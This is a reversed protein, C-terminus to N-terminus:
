YGFRGYAMWAGETMTNIPVDPDPEEGPSYWKRQTGRIHHQKDKGLGHKRHTSKKTCFEDSYFPSQEGCVPGGLPHINIDKESGM